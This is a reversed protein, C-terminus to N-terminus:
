LQTDYGYSSYGTTRLSLHTRAPVFLSRERRRELSLRVTYDLIAEFGHSEQILRKLSPNCVQAAVGLLVRRKTGVIEVNM